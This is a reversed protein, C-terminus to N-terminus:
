HLSGEKTVYLCYSSILLSAKDVASLDRRLFHDNFVQQYKGIFHLMFAFYVLDTMRFNPSMSQISFVTTRICASLPYLLVLALVTCTNIYVHPM